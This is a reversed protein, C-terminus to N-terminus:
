TLLGLRRAAAVADDRGSAGLKRYVRSTYTKVTNRSIYLRHGIDELTERSALLTLVQLERPSLLSEPPARRGKVDPAVANIRRILQRLRTSM